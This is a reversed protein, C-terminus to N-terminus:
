SRTKRAWSECLRETRSRNAPTYASTARLWRRRFERQMLYGLSAFKLNSGAGVEAAQQCRLCAEAWPVASLRKRSIEEGCNACTGFNGQYIRRLARRVHRLAQSEHDLNHIAIDRECARGVEDLEDASKEVTIGERYRLIQRMAAKKAALVLRFTEVEHKTM